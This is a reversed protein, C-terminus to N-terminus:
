GSPQERKLPQRLLRRTLKVDTLSQEAKLCDLLKWITPNNCSLMSHFGHHWGEALNSSRPLLMKTSDHLNWESRAFTLVLGMGSVYVAALYKTPLDVEVARRKLNQKAVLVAIESHQVDQSHDPVPSTLQKDM